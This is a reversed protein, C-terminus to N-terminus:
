LDGHVDDDEDEDVVDEDPDVLGSAREAARADRLVGTTFDIVHHLVRKEGAVIVLAARERVPLAADSLRAVDDALTTAYAALQERALDRLMRIAARENRRNVTDMVQQVTLTAVAEDRNLNLVRLISMLQNPILDRRVAYTFDVQPAHLSDLLREKIAFHNDMATPPPVRLLVEDRLPVADGDLVDNMTFGYDLLMQANSMSQGYHVLLEEGKRVDHTASFVFRYDVTRSVVNVCEDPAYNFLDGVPVLAPAPSDEGPFPVGFSRSWVISIAWAFDDATLHPSIFPEPPAFDALQERVDEYARKIATQRLEALNRLKSVDLHALEDPSFFHLQHMSARPPMSSLFAAWPSEDGRYKEALVQVVMADTDSLDLGGVIGSTGLESEFLTDLTMLLGLPVSLLETGAAIDEHAFFGRRGDRTALEVLPSISGAKSLLWPLVPPTTALPEVAGTSRPCAEHPTEDARAGVIALLLLLAVRSAAAM